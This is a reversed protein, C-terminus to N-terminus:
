RRRSATFFVECEPQRQDCYAEALPDIFQRLGLNPFGAFIEAASPDRIGQLTSFIVSKCRSAPDSKAGFAKLHSPSRSGVDRGFKTALM